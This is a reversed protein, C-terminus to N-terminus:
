PPREEVLFINPTYPWTKWIYLVAQQLSVSKERQSPPALEAHLVHIKPHLYLGAAYLGRANSKLNNSDVAAVQSHVLLMGLM